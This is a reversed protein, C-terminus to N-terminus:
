IFNCTSNRCMGYNRSSNFGVIKQLEVKDGIFIQLSEKRRCILDFFFKFWEKTLLLSKIKLNSLFLKKMVKEGEVIFIGDSLHKQTQRLTTYIELSSTLKNTFAIHM